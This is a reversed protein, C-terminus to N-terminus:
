KNHDVDIPKTVLRNPLHIDIDSYHIFDQQIELIIQKLNRINGSQTPIDDDSGADNAFRFVINSGIEARVTAIELRQTQDAM